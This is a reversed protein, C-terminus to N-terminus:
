KERGFRDFANYSYLGKQKSHMIIVKYRVRGFKVTDGIELKFGENKVLGYDKDNQMHRMVLWLKDGPNTKEEEGDEMSHKHFVWFRNDKLYCVAACEDVEAHDGNPKTLRLRMSNFDTFGQKFVNEDSRKLTFSGFAAFSNLSVKTHEEYDFLGHSDRYWTSANIHVNLNMKEAQGLLNSQGIM